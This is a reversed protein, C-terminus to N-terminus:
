LGSPGGDSSEGGSAKGQRVRRKHEEEALSQKKVYEMVIEEETKQKELQSMRDREARESEELAQRFAEDDDHHAGTSTGVPPGDLVGTEQAGSAMNVVYQAPYESQMHALEKSEAIIRQYEEDDETDSDDWESDSSRQRRTELLSNKLTEELMKQEEESAGNRSAEEISAKMARQLAEDEDENASVPRELETISARIARAIMEDEEPNGRSTESVSLQIAHELERREAEEEARLAAQEQESLRPRSQSSAPTHPRPFTNAHRLPIAPFEAVGTSSANPYENYTGHDVAAPFTSQAEPRKFHSSFKAWKEQKKARRDKMLTHLAEVQEEGLNKKKKLNVNINRWRSLIDEKEARSVGNAEDYGQSIRAAIIYNQVNAGKNKMAEQYLGKMAYGPVSFVGGMVRLPVGAIGRGVGKIFGIGGEKKAGKM